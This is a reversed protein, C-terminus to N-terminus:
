VLIEAFVTSRKLRSIEEEEFFERPKERVFLVAAIKM